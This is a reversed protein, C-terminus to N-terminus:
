SGVGASIRALLAPFGTLDTLVYDPLVEHRGAERAARLTEPSTVGTLVLVSVMGARRAMGIDTDLRDGVLLVEEPRAEGSQALLRALEPEPKGIVIPDVGAATTVAAVLAGAGPLLQDDAPYTADTNTVVYLAGALIAAQAAALTDYTFTRDLGVVVAVPALRPVGGPASGPRASTPAPSALAPAPSSGVADAGGSDRAHWARLGVENLEQLLGEGGVVMVSAGRGFRAVLYAATAGASGLVQDEGAPLGFGRLLTAVAARHTTSNNTVYRLALGADLVSALAEAVGPLLRGGRHIVGDIDFAAMRLAM